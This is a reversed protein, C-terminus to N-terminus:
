QCGCSVVTWVGGLPELPQGTDELQHFRVPHQRPGLRTFPHEISALASLREIDAVLHQRKGLAGPALHLWQENASVAALRAHCKATMAWM